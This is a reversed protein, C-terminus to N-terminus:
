PACDPTSPSEPELRTLLEGLADVEDASFRESFESRIDEIHTSAAEELKAKGADTLHAYTVRADTECKASDVYGWRQLRDLLRTIGSPTLLVSKALDVRRMMRDPAHALHLLVEYDSLTLGHDNELASSLRRTTAIHARLLAVFTRQEATRLPIDPKRSAQASM